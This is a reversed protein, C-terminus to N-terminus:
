GPIQDKYICLFNEAHTAGLAQIEKPFASLPAIEGEVGFKRAGAATGSHLYLVVPKLELRAGLRRAVDYATTAGLGKVRGVVSKVWDYLSPFDQFDELQMEDALAVELGESLKNAVRCQHGHMKGHWLRSIWAREIAQDWTLTKDGWWRDEMEYSNGWRDIYEHVLLQLNNDDVTQKKSQCTPFVTNM